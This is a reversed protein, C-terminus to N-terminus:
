KGICFREFVRGLIDPSASEGTIESLLRIAEYLDLVVAEEPQGCAFGDVAERVALLCNELAKKHRLNPVALGASCTGGTQSRAAICQRLADLGEQYKASVSVQPMRAFEGPLSLRQQLDNKNLVLVMPYDSFRRLFRLDSTGLSQSGDLVFLILDAETVADCAKDMGIEEVPGPHDHLGATDVVSVPVGCAYFHDEIFDRTTGPCDTVISRERHVLCNLLSSKGANPSGAIVVRLGERIRRAAAYEQILGRVPELVDTELRSAFAGPSLSEWAEGPFDIGAELLAVLEALHSRVGAIREGLGGQLQRLALGAEAASRAEILDMVAEAQTLDMRGNLFARRTFEGPGALCLGCRLLLDLIEQLVVPSGHAHIEAVDEGTYSFPARMVVLLVEDITQGSADDVVAGHYFYRSVPSWDASSCGPRFVRCAAGM